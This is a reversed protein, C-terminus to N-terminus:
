AEVTRYNVVDCEEESGLDLLAPWDWTRITPGWQNADWTVRLTIEATILYPAYDDNM